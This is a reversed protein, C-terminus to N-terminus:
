QAPFVHLGSSVGSRGVRFSGVLKVADTSGSTNILNMVFMEKMFKLTFYKGFFQMSFFFFFNKLLERFTLYRPQHRTM